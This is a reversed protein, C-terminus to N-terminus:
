RLRLAWCVHDDILGRERKAGIGIGYVQWAALPAPGTSLILVDSLGSPSWWTLAVDRVSPAWPLRLEVSGSSWAVGAGIWVPDVGPWRSANELGLLLVGIGHAELGYCTLVVARSAPAAYARLQRPERHKVDLGGGRERVADVVYPTWDNWRPHGITVDLALGGGTYPYPADLPIAIRWPAPAGEDPLDPLRFATRSFVVTRGDTAFLGTTRTSPTYCGLAITVSHDKEHHWWDYKITQSPLATGDRRFEIATITMSAPLLDPGIHQVVRVQDYGFTSDLANGEANETYAPVPVQAGAAAALFALAFAGRM